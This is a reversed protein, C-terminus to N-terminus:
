VNKKKNEKKPKETPEGSPIHYFQQRLDLITLFATGIEAPKAANMIDDDKIPLEESKHNYYALMCSLIAYITRKADPDRQERICDVTHKAYDLMDENSLDKYAIETAYCYGLTVQRGCLTIEKTIM